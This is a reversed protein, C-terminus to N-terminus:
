PTVLRAVRDLLADLRPDKDRADEISDRAQKINQRSCHLARGLEANGIQLEVAAVYMAQRRLTAAKLWGPLTPREATFDQALMIEPDEGALLALLAVISRHQAAAGSPRPVRASSVAAALRALTAARPQQQGMRLFYWNSPHIRATTCLVAHPIKKQRREREIEVIRPHTQGFMALQTKNRSVISLATREQGEAVISLVTREQPAAVTSLVTRRQPPTVTSLAIPTQLGM